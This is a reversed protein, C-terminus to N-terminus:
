IKKLYDSSVCFGGNIEYGREKMSLAKLMVLSEDVGLISAVESPTKEGVVEDSMDGDDILLEACLMNAEQEVGASMDYLMTDWVPQNRAIDRHLIHHCLEHCCVVRAIHENLSENILIFYNKKIYKYLGKLSGLDVCRIHVGMCACLEFPDSTNYKARIERALNYIRHWDM